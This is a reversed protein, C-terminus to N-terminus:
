TPISEYQELKIIMDAEASGSLCRLINRRDSGEYFDEAERPTLGGMIKREILRQKLISEDAQMMASFDALSRLSAWRGDNLLLWNGEILVIGGSVPILDEVVDHMRRDYFPWRVDRERLASVADYLRGIDFSEPCGKVDRMPVKTGDRIVFHASIYDAHYHFGDIGVSQIPLVAGDRGSLEQLFAALTSKGSAPPGALFAIIRHRKTEQLKTLKRLLPLCVASVTEDSFVARIDLGNVQLRYRGGPDSHNKM